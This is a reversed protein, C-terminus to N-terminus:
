HWCNFFPVVEGWNQSRYLRIVCFSSKGKGFSMWRVRNEPQRPSTYILDNLKQTLSMFFPFCVILPWMQFAPRLHSTWSCMFVKHCLSSYFDLKTPQKKNAQSKLEEKQYRCSETQSIISYCFTIYLLYHLAGLFFAVKETNKQVIEYRTTPPM